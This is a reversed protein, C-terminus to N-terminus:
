HTEAAASQRWRLALLRGVAEVLAPLELPKALFASAGAARSDAQMEPTANASAIIVPIDATARQRKLERVAQLGDMVPMVADMIILAPRQSRALEIAGHADAASLVDFGLAELSDSLVERNERVDDVVLV